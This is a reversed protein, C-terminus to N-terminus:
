RGIVRLRVRDGERVVDIFACGEVSAGHRESGTDRRLDDSRALREAQRRDVLLQLGAILTPPVSVCDESTGILAASRTM